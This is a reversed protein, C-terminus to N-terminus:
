DSVYVVIHSTGLGAELGEYQLWVYPHKETYWVYTPPILAGTLGTLVGFNPILRLKIAKIKGTPLELVESGIVKNTIRYLRPESSILYFSRYKKDDRHAVFTKLFYSLTNNDTTHGKLPFTKKKSIKGKGDSSICHIKREDYDFYKEYKVIIKGDKDRIIRNSYLLYLIDEKEEMEADIDWTVNLYKDYNGEGHETYKYFVKEDRSFRKIFSSFNSRRQSTEKYVYSGKRNEYEEMFSKTETEYDEAYAICSLMSILILPLLKNRNM